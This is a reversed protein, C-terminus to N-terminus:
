FLIPMFILQMFIHTAAHAYISYALGKKWYLYGFGIGGIGNLVFCRILIPISLGLSQITLPLHGAAFLISSLIISAIYTWNPINISNKTRAFLKWLIMVFLTMVFLRLLIEEIIGGYLVGSILYTPSFVYKTITTPLYKAFIFRDSVTLIFATVFGILISFLVAIKDFEFNLKLNAKRALKLGIFTAIFTIIVGQLAAIPILAGISGIQSIIQQKLSDTLMPIQYIAAMISAILGIFTFILSVKLDKNKMAKEM